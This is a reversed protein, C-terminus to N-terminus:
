VPVDWLRVINWYVFLSLCSAFATHLTQKPEYSHAVRLTVSPPLIDIVNMLIQKVIDIHMVCVCM